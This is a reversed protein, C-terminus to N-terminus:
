TVGGGEGRGFENQWVDSGRDDAGRVYSRPRSQARNFEERSTATWRLRKMTTQKLRKRDSGSVDTQTGTKPPRGRKKGGM